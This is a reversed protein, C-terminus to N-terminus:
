GFVVSNLALISVWSLPHVPDAKERYVHVRVKVSVHM